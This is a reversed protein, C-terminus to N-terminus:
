ALSVTARSIEQVANLSDSVDIRVSFKDLMELRKVIINDSTKVDHTNVLSFVRDRNLKQVGITSSKEIWEFMLTAAFVSQQGSLNVRQFVSEPSGNAWAYDFRFEQWIDQVAAATKFNQRFEPRGTAGAQEFLDFCADKLPLADHEDQSADETSILEDFLFDVAEERESARLQEPFYGGDYLRFNDKQTQILADIFQPSRRSVSAGGKGRLESKKAQKEWFEVWRNYMAKDSIFRVDEPAVFRSVVKGASWLMVGINRPEMRRPDEVFKAIVYRQNNSM